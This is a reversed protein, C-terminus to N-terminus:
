YNFTYYEDCRRCLEPYEARVQRLHAASGNQWVSHIGDEFVNGMMHERDLDERCMPVSGDLLINLDRQTHRCPFRNLPSIDTVRRDPLRGCYHDYKQVIVQVGRDKWARYFAEVQQETEGMRITQVYVRDGHAELLTDATQRAEQFGRGRVETYSDEDDTDLDIIFRTSALNMAAIESLHEARWGVGSTEVLLELGPADEVTRILDPLRTHLGSEGWLSIHVMGDPAFQALEGILTEFREIPMEERVELADARILRYPSHIPTQVDGEVVQISTYAPLTRLIEGRRQLLAAIRVARGEAGGGDLAVGGRQGTEGGKELEAAVRSCLLHNRATDCALTARLIRLDVPSLETEVDFANIDKQVVGFLADRKLPEPSKEALTRLQDLIRPDVLEPTLGEPYGDAFTYEAVYTHHSEIMRGTVDPDLFPADARCFLLAEAEGAAEKLAPMLSATDWSDRTIVSTHGNGATVAGPTDPDALITTKEVNPLAAVYGRVREIASPGGALPVSAYESLATADICVSLKMM